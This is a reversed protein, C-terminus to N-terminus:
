KAKIKSDKLTPTLLYQEQASLEEMKKERKLLFEKDDEIIEKNICFNQFNFLAIPKENKKDVSKDM